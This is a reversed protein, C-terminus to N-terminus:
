LPDDDDNWRLFKLKESNSGLILFKLLIQVGSRKYPRLLFNVKWLLIFSLTCYTKRWQHLYPFLTKAYDQTMSQDDGGGFPARSKKAKLTLSRMESLNGNYFSPPPGDIGQSKLARHIKGARLLSFNFLFLILTFSLLFFLSPSLLLSLSGVFALEEM